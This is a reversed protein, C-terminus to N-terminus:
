SHERYLSYWAYDYRFTHDLTAVCIMSIPLSTGYSSSLIWVPDSTKAVGICQGQSRWHYCPFSLYRPFDKWWYRSLYTTAILQLLSAQIFHSINRPHYRFAVRTVRQRRIGFISM